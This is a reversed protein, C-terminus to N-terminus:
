RCRLWFSITDRLDNKKIDKEKNTVKLRTLAALWPLSLKDDMNVEHKWCVSYDQLAFFPFTVGPGFSLVM